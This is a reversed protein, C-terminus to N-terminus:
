LKPLSIIFTAGYSTEDSLKLSGLGSGGTGRSRSKDARYFRQFIQERDGEPIGSGSDSVTLEITTETSHISVAITEQANLYRVANSILNGLVQQFRLPDVVANHSSQTPIMSLAINAEEATPQFVEIVALTLETLSCIQLDLQLENADTLSILRLDNILRELAHTQNLTLAINNQNAPIVRDLMGELNTSIVTLPTRLEHAVDAILQLRQEQSQYLRATMDSFAQELQGVEDRGPPIITTYHWNGVSANVTARTLRRIPATLQRSIVVGILIAIGSIILAVIIVGRRFDAQFRAILLSERTSGILVYGSPQASATLSAAADQTFKGAEAFTQARAASDEPSRIPIASESVSAAMLTGVLESESDFVINSESDAIILRQDEPWFPHARNPTPPRILVSVLWPADQFIADIGNWSDALDYYRALVPALLEARYHADRDVFVTLEARFSRAVFFTM